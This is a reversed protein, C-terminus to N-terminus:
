FFVMGQPVKFWNRISLVDNLVKSNYASIEWDSLVYMFELDFNYAVLVNQSITVHRNRDNSRDRRIVMAPIYTSDIARICDQYNNFFFFWLNEAYYFFLFLDIIIIFINENVWLLKLLDVVVNLIYIYIM